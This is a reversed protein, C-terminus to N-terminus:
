FARVARVFLPESKLLNGWLSYPGDFRIGCGWATTDSTETSTWYTGSSIPITTPNGDTELAKQVQYINNTLHRAEGTSPLYWDDFTGTGYNANVYNLCLQAASSTHQTQNVIALSNGPGNWVSQASDGIEINTVDTWAQSTSIDIASCILGHNGDETCYFVCGGGFFEGVYHGSHEGIRTWGNGDYYYFGGAGNMQYVLLGPAPSDIAIRQAQSMRPVLMGRDTAQVDLMASPHPPTNDSKISVQGFTNLGPLFLLAFIYFSLRRM